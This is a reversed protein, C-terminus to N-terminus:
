VISHWLRQRHCNAVRFISSIRQFFFIFRLFAKFPFFYLSLRFPSHIYIPLSTLYSPFTPLPLEWEGYSVLNVIKRGNETLAFSGSLNKANNYLLRGMGAAAFNHGRFFTIQTIYYSYIFLKKTLLKNVGSSGWSNLHSVCCVTQNIINAHTYWNVVGM